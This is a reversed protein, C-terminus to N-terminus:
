KAPETECDFQQYFSVWKPMYPIKTSKSLENEHAVAVESIHKLNAKYEYTSPTDRPTSYAYPHNLVKICAAKVAPNKISEVKNYMSELVPVVRRLFYVRHYAFTLSEKTAKLLKDHEKEIASIQAKYAPYQKRLNAFQEAFSNIQEAQQVIERVINAELADSVPKAVLLVQLLLGFLVFVVAFKSRM